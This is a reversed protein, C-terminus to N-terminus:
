TRCEWYRGNNIIFNFLSSTSKWIKFQLLMQKWSKRLLQSTQQPNRLSGSSVKTFMDAHEPFLDAMGLDRVLKELEGEPEKRKVEEADSKM